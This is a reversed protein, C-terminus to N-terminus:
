DVYHYLTIRDEDEEYADENTKALDVAQYGWLIQDLPETSFWQEQNIVTSDGDEESRLTFKNVDYVNSM